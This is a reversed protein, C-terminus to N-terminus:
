SKDKTAPLIALPANVTSLAAQQIKQLVRLHELECDYFRQHNTNAALCARTKDLAEQIDRINITPYTIM